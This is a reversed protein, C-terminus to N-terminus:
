LLTTFSINLKQVGYHLNQQVEDVFRVIPFNSIIMM